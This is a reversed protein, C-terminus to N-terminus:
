PIYSEEVLKMCQDIIDSMKVAAPCGAAIQTGKLASQWFFPQSIIKKDSCIHLSNKKISLAYFELLDRLRDRLLVLRKNAQEVAPDAVCIKLNDLAIHVVLANEAM